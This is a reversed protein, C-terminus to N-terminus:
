LSTLRFDGETFNGNPRYVKFQPADEKKDFQELKVGKATLGHGLNTFYYGPKFGSEIVIVDQDGDKGVKYVKFKYFDNGQVDSWDESDDVGVYWTETGFTSESATSLWFSEETFIKIYSSGDSTTYVKFYSNYDVAVDDMTYDNDTTVSSRILAISWSAAELITKQGADEYYIIGRVDNSAYHIDDNKSKKSCGGSLIVTMALIMIFLPSKEFLKM